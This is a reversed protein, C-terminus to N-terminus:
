FWITTLNAAGTGFLHGIQAIRVTLSNSPGLPAGWDATQDAGTYVASTTATTL